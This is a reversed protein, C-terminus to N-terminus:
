TGSPLHLLLPLLHLFCFAWVVLFISICDSAAYLLAGASKRYEVNHIRDLPSPTYFSAYTFQDTSADLRYFAVGGGEHRLGALLHGSQTLKVSQSHM